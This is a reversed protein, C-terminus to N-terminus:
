ARRCSGVCGNAKQRGLVAAPEGAEEVRGQHLFVVQSAVEATFGIEHAVVIMTRGEAALDRMVKLVEGVPEPRACPSRCATAGAAQGAKHMMDNLGIVSVLATSKLRVLWNNTFSPIALRLMQPATIRQFITRSSM